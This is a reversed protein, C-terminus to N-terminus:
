SKPTTIKPKQNYYPMVPKSFKEEKKINSAMFSSVPIDLSYALLNAVTIGIRLSTFSGSSKNVLVGSINKKSLGAESLLLDVEHLLTEALRNGEILKYAIKRDNELLELRPPMSATDIVLIRRKNM